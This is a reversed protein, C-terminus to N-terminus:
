NVHFTLTITGEQYAPGTPNPNYKTEAVAALAIRKVCDSVKYGGVVQIDDKKVNGNRDVKIRLKVEAQRGQNKCTHALSGRSIAKRGKFDFMGESGGPPGNLNSGDPNGDAPGAGALGLGGTKNEGQMLASLNAEKLKDSIDEQKKTNNSQESSKSTKQPTTSNNKVVEVPSEDQVASNDEIPNNQSQQQSNQNQEPTESVKKNTALDNTSGSNETGLAEFGITLIGKSPTMYTFGLFLCLILLCAHVLLTTVLGNRKGEKNDKKNVM